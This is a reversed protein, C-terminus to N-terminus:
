GAGSAAFHALTPSGNAEVGLFRVPKGLERALVIEAQVGVSRQWGEIMLVIAEDCRDLYTRDFNQWFAWDTPLGYEVLTQARARM